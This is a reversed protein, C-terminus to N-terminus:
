RRIRERLSEMLKPQWANVCSGRAQAHDYAVTFLQGCQGCRVVHRQIAETRVNNEDQAADPACTTLLLSGGRTLLRRLVAMCALYTQPETFERYLPMDQCLKCM